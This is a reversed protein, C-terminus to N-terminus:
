TNYICPKQRKVWICVKQFLQNWIIIRVSCMCFSLCPSSTTHMVGGIGLSALVLIYATQSCLGCGAEALLCKGKWGPGGDGRPPPVCLRTAPSHGAGLVSLESLLRCFLPGLTKRLM